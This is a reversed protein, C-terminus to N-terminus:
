RVVRGMGPDMHYPGSSWYAVVGGNVELIYQTGTIDGGTAMGGVSGIPAQKWNAVASYVEGDSSASVRAFRVSLAKNAQEITMGNVIRHEDIAKKIEDATGAGAAPQGHAPAATAQAAKLKTIEDKLQANEARLRAVEMEDISIQRVKQDPATVLSAPKEQKPLGLRVALYGGVGAAAIVGIIVAGILLHKGKDASAASCAQSPVRRLAGCKPCSETKGALSQPAEMDAGCQSCKFEIM